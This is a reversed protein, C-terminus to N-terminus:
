KTIVKDGVQIRAADSPVTAEAMEDYVKTVVSEGFEEMDQGLVKGTIPHVIPEGERYVIMRMRPKLGVQAGLDTFMRKGAVKVVIGEVVPLLREFRAALRNVLFGLREDSKDEDFADKSLIIEGSSVDVLQVDIQVSRDKETVMGVFMAEAGSLGKGAKAATKPDVLGTQAFKYEDIINQLAAGERVVVNFRGSADLAKVFQRSLGATLSTPLEEPAVFPPVAVRMRSAVQKVKQERRDIM